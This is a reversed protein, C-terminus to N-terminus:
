YVLGIFFWGVWMIGMWMGMWVVFWRVFFVFNLGVFVILGVWMGFLCWLGSFLDEVVYLLGSFGDWVNWGM